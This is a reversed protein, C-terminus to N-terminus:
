SAVRSESFDVINYIWINFTSSTTMILNDIRVPAPDNNFNGSAYATMNHFERPDTNIVQQLIVDNVRVTYQYSGDLQKFQSFLIKHWTWLPLIEIVRYDKEGNVAASMRLRGNVALGISPNGDGYVDNNGGLGIGFFNTTTEVKGAILVELFVFWQKFFTPFTEVVNNESM